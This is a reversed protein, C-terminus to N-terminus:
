RVRIGGSGSVDPGWLFPTHPMVMIQNDNAFKVATERIASYYIGVKKGQPDLIDAGFKYYGYDEWIWRTMEKFDPTDPTVERWMKSNLEYKPEIGFIVYPRTDFGYYFYKYEQPVQNSEFAEQVIADRKLSGYTGACGNTLALVFFAIVLAIFYGLSDIKYIKQEISM